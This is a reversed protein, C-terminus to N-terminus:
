TPNFNQFVLIVFWNVITGGQQWIWRFLSTNGVRNKTKIHDTKVSTHSGFPSVESSTFIPLKWGIWNKFVFKNLYQNQSSCTGSFQGNKKLIIKIAMGSFALGLLLIASFILMLNM